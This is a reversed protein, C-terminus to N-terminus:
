GSFTESAGEIAKRRSGGPFLVAEDRSRTRSIGRFCTMEYCPTDRGQDNQYDSPAFNRQRFDDSCELYRVARLVDDHRKGFVAAVNRSDAVM